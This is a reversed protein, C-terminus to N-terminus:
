DESSENGLLFKYEIHEIIKSLMNRCEPFRQYDDEMAGLDFIIQRITELKYQEGSEVAPNWPNNGENLWEITKAKVLEKFYEKTM